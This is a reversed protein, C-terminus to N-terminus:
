RGVSRSAPHSLVCYFRVINCSVSVNVCLSNMGDHSVTKEQIQGLTSDVVFRYRDFYGGTIFLCFENANVSIACSFISFAATDILGAIEAADVKTPRLRNLRALVSELSKEACFCRVWLSWDAGLGVHGTAPERGM